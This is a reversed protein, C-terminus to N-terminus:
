TVGQRLLTWELDMNWIKKVSWGAPLSVWGTRQDTVQRAVRRIPLDFKKAGEGKVQTNKYGEWKKLARGLSWFVLEDQWEWRAWNSWKYNLVNQHLVIEIKEEHMSYLLRWIEEILLWTFCKGSKTKLELLFKRRSGSLADTVHKM